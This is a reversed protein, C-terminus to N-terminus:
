VLPFQVTVTTGEGETSELSMQANHAKVIERAIPLGLGTGSGDQHARAQENTYFREFVHPLVAHPIGIGHDRVTVVGQETVHIEIVGNEHSFKIANHIINFFLEELNQADGHIVVRETHTLFRIHQVAGLAEMKSVVRKVLEDLVIDVHLMAEGRTTRLLRETLEILRKTEGEIDTLTEVYAHVTRPQRLAASTAAYLAALPTRLEHAVNGSFMEHRRLVEEIPRLTRGALLYSVCAFVILIGIDAIFVNEKFEAFFHETFDARAEGVEHSEDEFELQQDVGYLLFGSFFVLIVAVMCVYLLTLMIRARFFDNYRFATGADVFLKSLIKM